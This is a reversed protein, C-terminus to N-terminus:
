QAEPLQIPRNWAAPLGLPIACLRVLRKLKSALLRLEFPKRIYFDAGLANAQEVEQPVESGSLVAVIKPKLEPRERLWALVGDLYESTL